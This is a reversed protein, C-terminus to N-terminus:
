WTTIGGAPPPKATSPVACPAAVTTGADADAAGGDDPVTSAGADGVDAAGADAASDATHYGTLSGVRPSVRTSQSWKAGCQPM